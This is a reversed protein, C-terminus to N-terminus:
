RLYIEPSGDPQGQLCRSLAHLGAFPSVSIFWTCAAAPLSGVLSSLSCYHFSFLLLGVLLVRHLAPRSGTINSEPPRPGRQPRGLRSPSYGAAGGGATGSWQRHADLQFPEHVPHFRVPLADVLLRSDPAPRVQLRHLAVDAVLSQMITLSVRARGLSAPSSPRSQRGVADPARFGGLM